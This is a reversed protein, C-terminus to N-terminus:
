SYPRIAFIFDIEVPTNSPLEAVGVATRAHSGKEGFIDKLLKSAADIVVPQASFGEASQVYGTIKLKTGTRCM